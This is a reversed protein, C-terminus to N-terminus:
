KIFPSGNILLQYLVFNQYYQEQNESVIAAGSYIIIIFIHIIINICWPVIALSRPGRITCHFRDQRDDSNGVEAIIAKAAAMVYLASKKYAARCIEDTLEM